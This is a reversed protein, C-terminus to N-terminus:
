LRYCVKGPNLILKPDFVKKIGQQLRINVPGLAEALYKTKGLGIGHEGSIQGGLEMAKKYIASMFEDVQKNFEKPDMDNSCAYIHLNGDGAHGFYKVSFDFKKKVDAVFGVYEAIANVPVVVDCEDLLKTQEEIGDLFSSRAAWIDKLKPATDAVFVDLAGDELLMEAAKEVIPDLEDQTDGDFTVLLYAGVDTGEIKRPFVQKGLYEESSVLIEKEFFELAQPHFHRKFFKPVTSICAALDEFPAMLSITAQPAPILKLTMETIIGLTGESGCMLNTMSYGSSTKSVTAGFHVIEGTPLVVTMARVYDRTAGYKVARMGGANTSVNGGLTALKEGPDPPYMCGHKLADDALTQLLVGPQVTVAFNDLDYSLIKNMKTTCIVVGGCIPVCAGALGTGAGRTTVPINNEYCVKMIASVEETSTADISVDPMRSGYIPMEDKAYDPNVDAGTVVHGHAAKELEAIIEPTVSNYNAM